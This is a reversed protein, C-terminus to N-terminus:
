EAEDEGDPSEEPGIAAALIEAASAEAAEDIWDSADAIERLLEEAIDPDLLQEDELPIRRGSTAADVMVKVTRATREPDAGAVPNEAIWSELMEDLSSPEITRASGSALHMESEPRVEVVIAGPLADAVRLMLGPVPGDVSVTVRVFCGAVENAKTPLDELREHLEVLRRGTAIETPTVKPAGTAPLEVLVVGKPPAEERSEDFRFPLMGGAYRGTVAGPLEQARHIHGFAAYSVPPIQNATTAYDDALDVRRESGAPQAGSILLHAAWIVKDSSPDVNESLWSKYTDYLRNM